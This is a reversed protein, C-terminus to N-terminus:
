PAGRLTALVSFNQKEAEDFNFNTVLSVEYEPGIREQLEGLLKNVAGETFALCRQVDKANM